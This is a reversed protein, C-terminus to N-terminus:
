RHWPRNLNPHQPKHEKDYTKIQKHAKIKPFISRVDKLFVPRYKYEDNDFVMQTSKPSWAVPKSWEKAGVHWSFYQNDYVAYVATKPENLYYVATKRQKM